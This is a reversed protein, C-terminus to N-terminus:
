ACAHCTLSHQLPGEFNSSIYRNNNSRLRSLIMLWCAYQELITYKTAPVMTSLPCEGKVVHGQVILCECWWSFSIPCRRLIIRRSCVRLRTCSIANPNSCKKTPHTRAHFHWVLSPSTLFTHVVVGLFNTSCSGPRPSRTCDHRAAHTHVNGQHRKQACVQRM